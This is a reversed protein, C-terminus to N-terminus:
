ILNKKQERREAMVEVYNLNDFKFSACHGFNCTPQEKICSYCTGAAVVVGNWSAWHDSADHQCGGCKM